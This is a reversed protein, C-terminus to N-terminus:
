VVREDVRPHAGTSPALTAGIIVPVGPTRIREGAGARHKVPRASRPAIEVAIM